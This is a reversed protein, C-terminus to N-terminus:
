VNKCVTKRFVPVVAELLYAGDKVMKANQGPHRQSASRQCFSFNARMTESGEDGQLATFITGRANEIARPFCLIHGILRYDGVTCNANDRKQGIDRTVPRRGKNRYQNNEACAYQNVGYQGHKISTPNEIRAGLSLCLTCEFPVPHVCM